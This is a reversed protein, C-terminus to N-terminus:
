RAAPDPAPVAAPGRKRAFSRVAGVVFGAGACAYYVVHWPLARAVFGAGRIQRLYRYFPANAVALVGLATAAEAAALLPVVPAMLAALGLAAVSAVSVRGRVDVNLANEVTGRELILETWPAARRLVDTRLMDVFSWRKLHTVQLNPDLAARHGADGLRYGFEVDEICPVAYGEDFGGLRLFADRRVAGCGTWFTAIAEPATQHVYHHLLNRFQSLFAPDAPAADYSGVLATLDADEAFRRRVREITDPRVVVDADVFFLVDGSAARAGDNRASAPGGAEARVVTRVVAETDPLDRWAGDTEGDAVVVWEDHPGLAEALALACARFAEGGYHVPVVVSVTLPPHPM